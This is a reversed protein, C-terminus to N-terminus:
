GSPVGTFPPFSEDRLWNSIMSLAEAPKYQPVEHGAGRVTAYTFSVATDFTQVYGAMLNYGNTTWPRWAEKVPYGMSTTWYEGGNYPVASDVDGYYILIKYKKAWQVYYPTLDTQTSTYKSWAGDQWAWPIDNVHIAKKVEELNLYDSTVRGSGCAYQNIGSAPAGSRLRGNNQGQLRAVNAEIAYAHKALFEPDRWLDGHQKSAGNYM